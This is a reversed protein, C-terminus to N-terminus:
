YGTETTEKEAAEKARLAAAAEAELKEMRRQEEILQVGDDYADYLTSLTAVMQKAREDNGFASYFM